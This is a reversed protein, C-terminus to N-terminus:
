IRFIKGLNKLAVIKRHQLSVSKPTKQKTRVSIEILHKSLVNQVGKSNTAPNLVQQLLSAFVETHIRYHTAHPQMAVGARADRETSHLPTAHTWLTSMILTSM